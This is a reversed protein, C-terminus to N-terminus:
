QARSCRAVGATGYARLTVPSQAFMTPPLTANAAQLLLQGDGSVAADRIAVPDAYTYALSRVYEALSFRQVEDLRLASHPAGSAMAGSLDVLSTQALKTLNDLRPANGGEHCAACQKVFLANGGALTQSTTGLAWVYSLVDWRQQANLSGSFPPMLNQIRGNTIVSHWESPKVGRRRAPSILNAVIKNQAKLQAARPGDGAGSTGHCAVCKQAYIAAGNAADPPQLPAVEGDNIRTPIVAPTLLNDNFKPRASLSCASLVSVSFVFFLLCSSILGRKKRRIKAAEHKNQSSMM